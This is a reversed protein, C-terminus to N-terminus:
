TRRKVKAARARAEAIREIYSAIPENENRRPLVFARNDPDVPASPGIPEDMMLDGGASEVAKEFQEIAEVLHVLEDDTERGTLAVGKAHLRHALEGSVRSREDDGGNPPDQRSSTM